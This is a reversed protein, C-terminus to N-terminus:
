LRLVTFFVVKTVTASDAFTVIHRSAIVVLIGYRDTTLYGSGFGGKTLSEFYDALDDFNRDRFYGSISHYAAIGESSLEPRVVVVSERVQAGIAICCFLFIGLLLIRPHNM